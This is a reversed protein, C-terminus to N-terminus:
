WLDRPMRSNCPGVPPTNRILSTGRYPRGPPTSAGLLVVTTYGKYLMGKIYCSGKHLVTPLTGFPLDKPGGIGSYLMVVLIAYNNM